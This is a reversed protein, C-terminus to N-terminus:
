QWRRGPIPFACMGQSGYYLLSKALDPHSGAWIDDFFMITENRNDWQSPRRKIRIAESRFGVQVFHKSFQVFDDHKITKYEKDIRAKSAKHTAEREKIDRQVVEINQRCSDLGGMMKGQYLDAYSLPHNDLMEQFVNKFSTTARNKIAFWRLMELEKPWCGRDSYRRGNATQPPQESQLYKVFGPLRVGNFRFSCLPPTIFLNDEIVMVIAYVTGRHKGKRGIVYGPGNWRFRKPEASVRTPLKQQKRVLFTTRDPHKEIHDDDFMMAVFNIESGEVIAQWAHGGAAVHIRPYDIKELWSKLQRETEPPDGKELM